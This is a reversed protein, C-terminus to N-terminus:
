CHLLCGFYWRTKPANAPRVFCMGVSKASPRTQGNIPQYPLVLLIPGVNQSTAACFCRALVANPHGEVLTTARSEMIEASDSPRVQIALLNSRRTYQCM